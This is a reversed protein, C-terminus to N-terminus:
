PTTSNPLTAAPRLTCPSTSPKAKSRAAMGWAITSSWGDLDTPTWKSGRRSVERMAFTSSKRIVTSRSTSPTSPRHSTWPTFWPTTIPRRTLFGVSIVVVAVLVAFTIGIKRRRPLPEAKQSESEPRPHPLYLALATAVMTIIGLSWVTDSVFHAGQVVRGASLLGGLVVGTAVGGYALAKSHRRFGAMSLFVFGMTCHGCPFSAGKGPTGPPFIHRYDWKGGFEVTQGPRPRGWYQKLVANVLLGAALITTLVVILCPRRWVFLRRVYFGALWTGLAALTLVIGPITGYAHLWVWLPQKGLYWGEQQRYFLEAVRRDLDFATFLVTVILLVAFQSALVVRGSSAAPKRPSSQPSSTPM